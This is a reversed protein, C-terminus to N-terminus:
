SLEMNGGCPCTPLGIEAWKKSVRLTYECEWCQVKLMRTSQKPVGPKLGPDLPTHPFPGLSDALGNVRLTLEPGATATTMKGVLGLAKALRMFAGTHGSKCNDAAHVLEHLLVVLTYPGSRLEPSIFIHNYGEKDASDAWCWGVAKGARKSYGISVRIKEPLPSNCQQFWPRMEDIAALLWQERTAHTTM